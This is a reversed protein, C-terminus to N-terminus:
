TWAREKGRHLTVKGEYKNAAREAVGGAVGMRLRVRVRRVQALKGDEGRLCRPWETPVDAAGSGVGGAGNAPDRQEGEQDGGEGAEGGMCGLHSQLLVGAPAGKGVNWVASRFYEAPLSPELRQRDDRAGSAPRAGADRVAM